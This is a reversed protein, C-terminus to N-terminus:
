TDAFQEPYVSQIHKPNTDYFIPGMPEMDYIRSTADLFDNRAAFPFFIFEEIFKSILDYIRNDEDKQFITKAVRWEERNAIVEQAVKTSRPDFPTINGEEDVDIVHPLLFRGMRIDPELREIRHQKSKQGTRPWKLEEIPFSINEIRMREEFYEIDTQMGFQEYGVFVCEIGPMRQWRKWLDRLLQWRKSLKMRHRWGDLLYKNLAVDVGVISFATDDSTSHKGKSPDCMIYVNLRKPRVTWFKLQRPDFTTVAGELPNLLLQAAVVSRTAQRKREWLEQSFFIPRGDFTGDDTAAHRREKLIKREILQGYTDAFHYRTGVIWIRGDRTGLNESLDFRETTKRIMEETNVSEETVLDDYIRLRFHKGTPMGKLVGHAEVTAERPNGKRKVVIGSEDGWRPAQKEPDKWFIEPFLKKLIANDQLEEKLQIIFAKATPRDNSFIGITIEPDRIIEQITGAFTIITSKYHERAWLDIHDDPAREVERCRDFIWDDRVDPRRLLNTLLFYRDVFALWRLGQRDNKAWTDTYLQEVEDRPKDWLAVVIPDANLGIAPLSASKAM